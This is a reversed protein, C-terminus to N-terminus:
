DLEIKSSTGKSKFIESSFILISIAAALVSVVSEKFFDNEMLTDATSEFPISWNLPDFLTTLPADMSYIYGILTGLYMGVIIIFINTLCVTVVKVTGQKGGAANYIALNLLPFIFALFFAIIINNDRELPAFTYLLVWIATGVLWFLASFLKAKSSSKQSKEDDDTKNNLKTILDLACANCLGYRKLSVAAKKGEAGTPAGCESCRDAAGFGQERLREALVPMYEALKSISEKTMITVGNDEVDYEEIHLQEDDGKILESLAYKKVNSEQTDDLYYNFFIVKKGVTEYLTVLYGEYIGFACKENVTLGLDRAYEQLAKGIM